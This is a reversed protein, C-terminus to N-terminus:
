VPKTEELDIAFSLLKIRDRVGLARYIRILEEEEKSIKLGSIAPKTEQWGLLFAPSVDLANAMAEAIPRKLNRTVGTEYKNIQAKTVGVKQGLEEQTMHKAKRLMYIRNGQANEM